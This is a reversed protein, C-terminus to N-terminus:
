WVVTDGSVVPRMQDGPGKYVVFEDLVSDTAPDVVAGYIDWNGNRKDQWVVYQGSVSPEVQESPGRHVQFEHGTLISYAFIDGDGYRSDWWVGLGASYWPHHRSGATDKSITVPPDAPPLYRQQIVPSGSADNVWLAVSGGIAPEGQNGPGTIVTFPEVYTGAAAVAPLGALLMLLALTAVVLIFRVRM